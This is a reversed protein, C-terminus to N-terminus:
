CWSLGKTPRELLERVNAAIIKYGVNGALSQRDHNFVMTPSSKIQHQTAQHQDHALQAYAHGSTICEKIDNLPMGNSVVIDDLVSGKSLDSTLRFFASQFKLRLDHVSRAPLVQNNELYRVSALYLHAPLSSTPSNKLWIDPNVEIHPFDKAIDLVHQNYAQMGGKEQWRTKLKTQADGFISFYVYNIDIRDKFESELEAIRIQSVYAWICLIDSYYNIHIPNAM